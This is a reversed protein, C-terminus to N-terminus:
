RDHSHPLPTSERLCPRRRPTRRSAYAGRRKQLPNRAPCVRWEGRRERGFRHRRENRARGGCALASSATKVCTEQLASFFLGKGQFVPRGARQPTTRALRPTNRGGCPINKWALPVIKRWMPVSGCSFPISGLAMGTIGCAVPVSGRRTPNGARGAPSIGRRMPSSGRWPLVDGQSALAVGCSEAVDGQREPVGTRPEPDRWQLPAVIGGRPLFLGRFPPAHGGPEALM